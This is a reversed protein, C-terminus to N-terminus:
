GGPVLMKQSALGLQGACEAQGALPGEKQHGGQVSPIGSEAEIKPLGIPLIPNVQREEIAPAAACPQGIPQVGDAADVREVVLITAACTERILRIRFTERSTPDPQDRDSRLDLTEYSSAILSLQFVIEAHRFLPSLIEARPM